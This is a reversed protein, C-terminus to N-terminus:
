KAYFISNALKCEDLWAYFDEDDATAGSTSAGSQGQTAGTRTRRSM